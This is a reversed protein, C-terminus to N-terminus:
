PKWWYKSLVRGIMIGVFMGWTSMVMMAALVAGRDTCDCIVRKAPQLNGSCPETM